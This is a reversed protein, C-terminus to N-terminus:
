LTVQMLDFAADTNPFITRAEELLPTVVAYRQSFHTLILRKVDARSAVQAAWQATMHRHEHAKEEESSGYTSECVLLDTHEAIRVLNQHPATDPILTFKKGTVKYTVEKPLIRKGAVEVAEGRSLKGILPGEKLGLRACAAMDVRVRDKERWSYALCPVGHDAPTCWVEYDETDLFLLQEERDPKLEHVKLDVKNEFITANLLHFMKEKTDNPGYIHLTETYNSNGITQILGILGAVHDGHWHTIFIRRVKARSIGVLGMQRQTGEGCDFLMGEGNFELYLGSVNRDKTPVMSGTGLITIEAAM